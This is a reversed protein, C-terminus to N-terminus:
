RERKKYIHVIALYSLLGLIGLVLCVTPLSLFYPKITEYYPEQPSVFLSAQWRYITPAPMINKLVLMVPSDSALGVFALFFNFFTYFVTIIVSFIYSKNFFVIAILVPLTGVTYLVGTLTAICLKEGINVIDGGSLIGGVIASLTTAMSFVIGLIFLVIIKVTALRAASIPILMLNKLTDSDREVIFLMSAVIGLVCPLMLAIGYSILMAFLGNFNDMNAFSGKLAFATGVVPFLVSAFLVFSIFHKRKIKRLECKVLKHM